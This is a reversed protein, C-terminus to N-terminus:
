DKQYKLQKIDSVIVINTTQDVIKILTRMRKEPIRICGASGTDNKSQTCHLYIASGKGPECEWNYNLALAYNYFPKRSSLKEASTWDKKVNRSDVMRNYYKSKSDDVWYDYATVKHYNLVSGPNKKLGFALSFQYTGNPTKGDGETKKSTSGNKGYVGRTNFIQKWIGNSDKKYYCVNVKYGGKGIVLILQNSNKAARLQEIRIENINAPQEKNKASVLVSLSSSGGATTVFAFILFLICIKIYPKLIQPLDIM